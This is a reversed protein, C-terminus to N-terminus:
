SGDALIETHCVEALQHAFQLLRPQNQWATQIADTFTQIDEIYEHIMQNRLQRLLMWQEASDLWGFREAKDLNILYAAPQEGLATLVAPLLKDGLTDQLRCFRSVFAEVKLALEPNNNLSAMREVSIGGSFTQEAAYNLHAIGRDVVRLLFRLRERSPSPVPQTV